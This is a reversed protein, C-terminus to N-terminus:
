CIVTIFGWIKREERAAWVQEKFIWGQGYWRRSAWCVLLLFSYFYYSFISTIRCFICTSQRRPLIARAPVLPYQFPRSITHRLPPQCCLLSYGGVAADQYMRQWQKKNALGGGSMRTKSDPGVGFGQMVKCFKIRFVYTTKWLSYGNHAQSYGQTRPSENM